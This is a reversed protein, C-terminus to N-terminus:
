AIELASGLIGSLPCENKRSKNPFRMRETVVWHEHGYILTPVDISQYLAKLSLERKVVISWKVMFIVASAAGVM